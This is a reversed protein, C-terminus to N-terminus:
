YNAHAMWYLGYLVILAGSWMPLVYNGIWGILWEQFPPRSAYLLRCLWCAHKPTM